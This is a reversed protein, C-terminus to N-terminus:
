EKRIANSKAVHFRKDDDANEQETCTGSRKKSPNLKAMLYAYCFGRGGFWGRSFPLM